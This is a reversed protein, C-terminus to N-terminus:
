DVVLVVGSKTGTRANLSVRACVRGDKLNFASSRGTRVFENTRETLETNSLPNLLLGCQSLRQRVDVAEKVRADLPKTNTETSPPTVSM